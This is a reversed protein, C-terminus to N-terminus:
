FVIPEGQPFNGEWGCPFHGQLYWYGQAAFFGPPFVDAYEAEMCLHLVDWQVANIFGQSLNNEEVVNKTKRQVLPITTKKVERVLTNWQRFREMDREALRSRYQNAAEGCLAQWENSECSKLAEGWANLFKVRASDHKGVNCFWEVKELEDLTAITRQHM